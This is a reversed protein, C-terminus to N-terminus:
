LGCKSLYMLDFSLASCMNVSNFPKTGNWFSFAAEQSEFSLSDLNIGDTDFYFYAHSLEFKHWHQVPLVFVAPLAFQRLEIACILFNRTAVAGEILAKGSCLTTYM